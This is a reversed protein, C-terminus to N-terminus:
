REFVRNNVRYWNSRPRVLGQASIRDRHRDRWSQGVQTSQTEARSPRGGRLPNGDEDRRIDEEGGHVGENNVFPNVAFFRRCDDDFIDRDIYDSDDGDNRTEVIFNHVRMCADIVLTNMRLSFKLPRWLIGWRLDIEGFACEVAIRSSSHFYNFSDDASGHITNDYPTLLFSKLSYASDGIFYFGKSALSQWNELLWKYLSLKKFATSDHEAGRSMISRFLIRKKKDVIAQVNVGYYGKRSYFSSPDNVNDRQTPKLVKVVWGDLAGICGSFLGNSARAFQLAVAAMAEDNSCYGVGDIPQFQENCLWKKVVHKFIKHSHNFSTEFILAMDLYSGGGLMRMTLALKIEGSIIGGTSGQHTFYINDQSGLRPSNMINNIYRESKFEDEGIIDIIRDCLLEFCHKSM